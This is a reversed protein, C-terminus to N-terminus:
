QLFFVTSHSLYIVARSMTFAQFWLLWQADKEEERKKEFAARFIIRLPLQELIGSSVDASSKQKLQLAYVKMDVSISNHLM